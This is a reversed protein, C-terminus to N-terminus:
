QGIAPMGLDPMEKLQATIKKMMKPNRMQLGMLAQGMRAQVGALLQPDISAYDRVQM